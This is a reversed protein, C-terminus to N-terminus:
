QRRQADVEKRAAAQAAAQKEEYEREWESPGRLSKECTDLTKKFRGWEEATLPWPGTVEVFREPGVPIRVVNPRQAPIIVPEGIDASFVKDRTM